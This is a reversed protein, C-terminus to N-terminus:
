KLYLVSDAVPLPLGECEVILRVARPIKDLTQLRAFPLPIVAEKKEEVPDRATETAARTPLPTIEFRTVNALLWEASTGASSLVNLDTQERILWSHGGISKLSYSVTVPRHTSERTVPDISIYGALVMGGPDIRLSIAQMLDWRVRDRLQETWASQTALLGNAQPRLRLSAIVYMATIALVATLATAAVLEILTFGSSGKAVAFRPSGRSM